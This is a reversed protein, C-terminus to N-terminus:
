LRTVVSAEVQGVHAVLAQSYLVAFGHQLESYHRMM